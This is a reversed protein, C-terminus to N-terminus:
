YSYEEEIFKIDKQAAAYYLSKLKEFETFRIKAAITALTDISEDCLM